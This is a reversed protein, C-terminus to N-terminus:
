YIAGGEVPWLKLDGDNNPTTFQWMLKLQPNFLGVKSYRTGASDYRAGAYYYDGPLYEGFTSVPFSRHFPIQKADRSVDFYRGDPPYPVPSGIQGARTFVRYTSDELQFVNYVQSPQVDIKVAFMVFPQQAQATVFIWMLFIFFCLHKM